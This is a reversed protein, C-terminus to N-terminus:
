TKKWATLSKLEDKIDHLREWRRQEELKAEPDKRDRQMFEASENRLKAIEHRLEQVRDAIPITMRFITACGGVHNTELSENRDRGRGLIPRSPYEKTPAQMISICGLDRILFEPDM